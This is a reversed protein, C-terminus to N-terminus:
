IVGGTPPTILTPTAPTTFTQAQAHPVAAFTCGLALAAGLLSSVRMTRRKKQDVKYNTLDRNEM